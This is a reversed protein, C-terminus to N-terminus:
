IFLPNYASAPKKAVAVAAAHAFKNSSGVVFTSFSHEEIDRRDEQRLKEKQFTVLEEPTLIMIRIDQSFLERLVSRLSDAYKSEIIDKKLQHPTSLVLRDNDFEVVSMDDFWTSITVKTFDKEMMKLAKYWIDSVTKM